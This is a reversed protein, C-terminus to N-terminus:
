TLSFRILADTRGRECTAGWFFPPSGSTLSSAELRLYVLCECSNGHAIASEMLDHGIKCRSCMDIGVTVFFHVLRGDRVGIPKPRLLRFTEYVPKRGPMRYAMPVIVGTLDSPKLAGSKVDRMVTDIAMKWGACVLCGDNPLPILRRQILSQGVPLQVFGNASERVHKLVSTDALSVPYRDIHRHNGLGRNRHQRACSNACHM